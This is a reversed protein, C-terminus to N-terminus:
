KGYPFIYEYIGLGVEFVAGDATTRVASVPKGSEIIKAAESTPVCITATTNPPVAVRLALKAGEIKWDCAIPGRISQYEGKRIRSLDNPLQYRETYVFLERCRGAAEDFFINFFPLCQAGPGKERCEPCRCYDGGDATAFMVQRFNPHQELYGDVGKRYAVFGEPKSACLRDYCELHDYPARVEGQKDVAWYARPVANGFCLNDYLYYVLEIGRKGCEHLILDKHGDLGYESHIIIRNMKWRGMRDILRAVMEPSHRSLSECPNIGRVSFALSERGSSKGGLVDYVAYLVGRAMGSTVWIAGDATTTFEYADGGGGTIRTELKRGAALQRAFELVPTEDLPGSRSPGNEAAALAASASTLVAILALLWRM